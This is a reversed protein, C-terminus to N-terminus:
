KLFSVTYTRNPPDGHAVKNREESYVGIFKDLQDLFYPDEVENSKILYYLIKRIPKQNQSKCKKTIKEKQLLDDTLYKEFYDPHECQKILEKYFVSLANEVKGYVFLVFLASYGGSFKEAELNIFIIEKKHSAFDNSM